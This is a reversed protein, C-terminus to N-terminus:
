RPCTLSTALASELSARKGAEAPGLEAARLVSPRKRDRVISARKVGPLTSEMAGRRRRRGVSAEAASVRVREGDEVLAM